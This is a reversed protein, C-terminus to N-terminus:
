KEFRVVTENIEDGAYGSFNSRVGVAGKSIRAVSLIDRSLLSDPIEFFYKDEVKHVDFMGPSSVGKDIIIDKYPKLVSRTAPGNIVFKLRSSDGSLAPTKKQAEVPFGYLILGFVFLLRLHLIRM